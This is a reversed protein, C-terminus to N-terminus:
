SRSPGRDPLSRPQTMQSDLVRPRAANLRSAHSRMANGKPMRRRERTKEEVMDRLQFFSQKYYFHFYHFPFRFPFSHLTQVHLM